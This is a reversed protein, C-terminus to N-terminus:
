DLKTKYMMFYQVEDENNFMAVQRISSMFVFGLEKLTVQYWENSFNSWYMESGFFDEETGEWNSDACTFLVPADPKLKLRILEFLYVHYYRPMHFIAFQSVIGGLTNNKQEELFSIMDNVFFRDWANPFEQKALQIQEESIDVGVYDIGTEILARGIPIGNGCGLEVIKGQKLSKLFENFIPMSDRSLDVAKAHLPAIKNYGDKVKDIATKSEKDIKM